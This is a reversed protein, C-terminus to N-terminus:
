DVNNPLRRYLDGNDLVYYGFSSRATVMLFSGLDIQHLLIDLVM